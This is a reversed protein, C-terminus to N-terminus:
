RRLRGGWTSDQRIAASESKRSEIPRQTRDQSPRIKGPRAAIPAEPRADVADHEGGPARDRSRCRGFPRLDCPRDSPSKKGRSLIM